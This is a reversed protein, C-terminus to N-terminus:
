RPMTQAPASNASALAGPSQCFSGWAWLAAARKKAAQRLALLRNGTRGVRTYSLPLAAAEWASYPPEIGRVRELIMAAKGWKDSQVTNLNRSAVLAPKARFCITPNGWLNFM